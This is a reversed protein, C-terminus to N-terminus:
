ESGEREISEPGPITGDWGYKRCLWYCGGIIPVAVLLLWGSWVALTMILYDLSM